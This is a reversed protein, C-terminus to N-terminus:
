QYYPYYPPPQTSPLGPNLYPRSYQGYIGHAALAAAVPQAVQAPVVQQARQAARMKEINMGQSPLRPDRGFQEIRGLAEKVVDANAATWVGQIDFFMWGSKEMLVRRQEETEAWVKACGNRHTQLVWRVCYEGLLLDLAWAIYPLPLLHPTQGVFLLLHDNERPLSRSTDSRPVYKLIDPSSPAPYPVYGMNLDSFLSTLSNEQTENEEGRGLYMGSPPLSVQNSTESRTM